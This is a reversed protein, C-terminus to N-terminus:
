ADFGRGHGAGLRHPYRGTRTCGGGGREAWNLQTLINLLHTDAMVADLDLAGPENWAATQSLRAAHAKGLQSTDGTRYWERVRAHASSLVDGSAPALEDVLGMAEAQVGDVNRGGLIM